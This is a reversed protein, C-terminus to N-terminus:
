LQALDPNPLFDLSSFKFGCTFKLRYMFIGNWNKLILQWWSDVASSLQYCNIFIFFWGLSNFNQVLILKLTPMFIETFKKEYWSEDATLLQWYSLVASLLQHFHFDVELASIQDIYWRLPTYLVDQGVKETDVTM